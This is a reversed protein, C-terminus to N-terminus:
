DLYHPKKADLFITNRSNTAGAGLECFVEINATYGKDEHMINIVANDPADEIQKILEAKTLPKYSM